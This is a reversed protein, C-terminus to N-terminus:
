ALPGSRSTGPPPKGGNPDPAKVWLPLPEAKTGPRALRNAVVGAYEAEISWSWAGVIGVAGLVTAAAAAPFWGLLLPVKWAAPERGITPVPERGTAKRTPPPAVGRWRQAALIERATPLRPSTERPRIGGSSGRARAVATGLADAGLRAIVRRSAAAPRGTM